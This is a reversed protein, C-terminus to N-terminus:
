WQQKQQKQQQQQQWTRLAAVVRALGQEAERADVLLPLWSQAVVLALWSQVVVLALWSQAVLMAAARCCCSGALTVAISHSALCLVVSYNYM